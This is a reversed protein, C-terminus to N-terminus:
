RSWCALGPDRIAAGVDEGREESSGGSLGRGRTALATAEKGRRKGEGETVRGLWPAELTPPEVQIRQGPSLCLSDRSERPRSLCGPAEM